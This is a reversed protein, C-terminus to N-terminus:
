PRRSRRGSAKKGALVLNLEQVGLEFIREQIPLKSSVGALSEIYQRFHNAPNMRAYKEQRWKELEADSMEPVAIPVGAKPLWSKTLAKWKRERKLRRQLLRVAFFTEM